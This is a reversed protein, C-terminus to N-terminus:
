LTADIDQMKLEHANKIFRSISAERHWASYSLDRMNYKENPAMSTQGETAKDFVNDCIMLVMGLDNENARVLVSFTQVWVIIM